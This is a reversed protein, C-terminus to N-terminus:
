GKLESIKDLAEDITKDDKTKGWGWLQKECYQKWGLLINEVEELVRRRDSLIFDALKGVQEYHQNLREVGSSPYPRSHFLLEPTRKNDIFSEIENIVKERETM